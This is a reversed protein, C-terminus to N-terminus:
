KKVKEFIFTEAKMRVSYSTYTTYTHVVTSSLALAAHAYVRNLAGVGGGYNIVSWEFATSRNHNIRITLTRGSELKVLQENKKPYGQPWRSPFLQGKQKTNNKNLTMKTTRTGKGNTNLVPHPIRSYRNRIM